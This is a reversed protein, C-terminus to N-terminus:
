EKELVECWPFINVRLDDPNTPTWTEQQTEIYANTLSRLEKATALAVDHSMPGLSKRNDEAGRCADRAATTLRILDPSVSGPVVGLVRRLFLITPLESEILERHSVTFHAIVGNEPAEDTRLAYESHDARREVLRIFFAM